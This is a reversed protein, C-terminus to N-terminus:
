LKAVSYVENEDTDHSYDRLKPPLFGIRRWQRIWEKVLEKKVQVDKLQPVLRVAKQLGLKTQGIPEKRERLDAALLFPILAVAPNLKMKEARTTRTDMQSTQLLSFWTQFPILPVGLEEAVVEAIERRPVPNPNALHLIFEQAHRMRCLAGAAEWAPLWAM